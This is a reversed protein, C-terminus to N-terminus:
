LLMKEKRRNSKRKPSGSILIGEILRPAQGNDRGSERLTNRQASDRKKKGEATLTKRKKKQVGIGHEQLRMRAKHASTTDVKRANHDTPFNTKGKGTKRSNKRGVQPVRDQRERAM